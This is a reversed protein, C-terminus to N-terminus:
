AGSTFTKAPAKAIIDKVKEWLDRNIDLNTQAELLSPGANMEFKVVQMAVYACAGAKLLSKVDANLSSYSDSFNVRSLVNLISEAEAIFQNIYAETNATSNAWTPIHRQVEATTAFIGTDVM